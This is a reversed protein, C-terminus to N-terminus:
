WAQLSCGGPLTFGKWKPLGESASDIEKELATVDDASITSQLTHTSEAETALQAGVVFLCNQIGILCDRDKQETVYTLLLGVQANM